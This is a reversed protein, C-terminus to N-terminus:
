AAKRKRPAPKKKATKKKAPKRRPKPLAQAILEHVDDLTIAPAGLAPKPEAPSATRAAEEEAKALWSVAPMPTPLEVPKADDGPVRDGTMEEILEEPSQEIEMAAEVAEAGAKEARRQQGWRWAFHGAVCVIVLVGALLAWELTGWGTKIGHEVTKGGALTGTAIVTGQVAKKAASAPKAAPASTIVPWRYGLVDAKSCASVNVANGQNGGLVRVTGNAGEGVYFAVHGQWSSNGRKFVVICGLQPRDLKRGWTLFSRAALSGTGSYGARRLMANAFADCWATEDNKIEPHGAEAFFQLVKAEHRSGVIERLGNLERAKKLWLPEAASVAPASM